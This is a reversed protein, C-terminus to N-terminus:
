PASKRMASFLWHVTKLFCPFTSINYGPFTDTNNDARGPAPRILIISITDGALYYLVASIQWTLVSTNRASETNISSTDEAPDTDISRTDPRNLILVGPKV